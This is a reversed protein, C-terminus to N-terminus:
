PLISAIVENHWDIIIKILDEFTRPHFQKYYELRKRLENEAEQENLFQMM